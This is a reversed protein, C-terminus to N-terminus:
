FRFHMHLHVIMPFAQHFSPHEVSSAIDFATRGENNMHNADVRKDWTLSCVVEPHGYMTALHLPTNGNSDEENILQEFGKEKLVFKVINKRGFKAAVHLFSAGDANESLLEKLDPSFDLLEKVIDLHGRSSAVHIPYFGRSDRRYRDFSSRDLLM